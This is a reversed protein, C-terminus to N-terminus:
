EPRDHDCCVFRSYKDLCSDAFPRDENVLARKSPDVLEQVPSLAPIKHLLDPIKLVKACFFHDLRSVVSESDAAQGHVFCTVTSGADILYVKEASQM